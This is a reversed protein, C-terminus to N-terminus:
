KEATEAAPKILAAHVMGVQERAADLGLGTDIVFDAKARKVEDPTQRTLISAFKEETMGPRALVRARQM